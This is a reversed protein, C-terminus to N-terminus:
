KALWAKKLNLPTITSNHTYGKVYDRWAETQNVNYLFVAPADVALINQVKDYIDKRKKQDLEQRGENLLKDVEPNSYKWINRGGTSLFRDYLWADPDTGNSMGDINSTFSGNNVPVLYSTHDPQLNIKPVINLPALEQALIQASRVPAENASWIRLDFEFGNPVSSQALLEKAKQLNPQKYVPEAAAWHWPPIPGAKLPYGEGNLAVRVHLDRDVAYAIAQRVKIDDFPKVKNNMALYYFVGSTPLDPIIVGPEARLLTVSNTTVFAIVDEDKSRLASVRANTDTIPLMEVRDLYPLGTEWYNPNRNLTVTGDAKLGGFMFPGSGADVQSLDGKAEVIERAVIASRPNALGINLAGNPQKMKFVVTYDDAIDISAVDKFADAGSSANKPDLIREISYKVDAAKLERGNHFMVGKRLSYTWTMGDTSMKWGTALSPQINIADDFQVLYDYMLQDVWYEAQNPAKHPDLKQIVAHVAFKLTGGPKPTGDKGTASAITPAAPVTTAAPASTAAPRPSETAKPAATPAAATPAPVPAACGVIFALAFLILVFRLTKM